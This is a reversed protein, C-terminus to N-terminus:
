SNQGTKEGDADTPEPSPSAMAVRVLHAVMGGAARILEAILIGFL